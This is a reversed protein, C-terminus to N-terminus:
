ASNCSMCVYVCVSYVHTLILSYRTIYVHYMRSVCTICIHHARFGGGVMPYLTPDYPLNAFFVEPTDKLFFKVSNMNPMYEVRVVRGTECLEYFGTYSCETPLRNTGKACFPDRLYRLNVNRVFRPGTVKEIMAGVGTKKKAPKCAPDKLGAPKRAALKALKADLAAELEESKQELEEQTEQSEEAEVGGGGAALAAKERELAQAFAKEKAAKIRDAKKKEAATM